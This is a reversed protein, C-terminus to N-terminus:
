RIVFTKTTAPNSNLAVTVSYTGTPWARPRTIHFESVSPGNLDLMLSDDKVTEAGFKWHAMLKQNQGSGTTAVSVYITDRLGFTDKTATINKDAGIAKGLTLGGVAAAAPAPPPPPPPPPAEKKCGIAAAAIVAIAFTKLNKM